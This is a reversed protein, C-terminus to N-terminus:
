LHISIHTHMYKISSIPKNLAPTWVEVPCFNISTQRRRLLSRQWERIVHRHGNQTAPAPWIEGRNFRFYKLLLFRVPCCSSAECTAPNWPISPEQSLLGSAYSKDQDRLGICMLIYITPFTKANTATCIWNCNNTHLGVHLRPVWALCGKSGKRM